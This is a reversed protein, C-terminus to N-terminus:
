VVGEGASQGGAQGHGVQLVENQVVVVYLHARQRWTEDLAAEQVPMRRLM